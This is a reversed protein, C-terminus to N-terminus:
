GSAMPSPRPSTPMATAGLNSRLLAYGGYRTPSCRRYLGRSGTGSLGAAPDPVQRGRGQRRGLAGCGRAADALRHRHQRQALRRECAAGRRRDPRRGEHQHVGHLLDRRSQAHADPQALRAPSGLLRGPQGQRRDQQANGAAHSRLNVAPMGWIVAEVARRREIARRTLEESSAAQAQVSALWTADTSTVCLLALSAIITRKM